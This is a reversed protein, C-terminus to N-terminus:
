PSGADGNGRDVIVHHIFRGSYDEQMIPAFATGAIQRFGKFDCQVRLGFASNNGHVPDGAFLGFDVTDSAWPQNGSESICLGFKKIHGAILHKLNGLFGTGM